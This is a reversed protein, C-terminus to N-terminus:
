CLAGVTKKGTNQNNEEEVTPHSDYVSAIVLLVNSNVNFIVTPVAYFSTLNRLLLPPWRQALQVTGDLILRMIHFSM